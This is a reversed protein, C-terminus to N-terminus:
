TPNVTIVGWPSGKRIKRKTVTMEDFRIGLFFTEGVKKFRSQLAEAWSFSYYYYSICVDM